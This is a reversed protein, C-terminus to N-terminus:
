PVPLHSTLAAALQNYFNSLDGGFVVAGIAFALVIFAVMLAYETSTAGRDRGAHWIEILRHV